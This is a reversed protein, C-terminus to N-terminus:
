CNWYRDSIHLVLEVVKHHLITLVDVFVDHFEVTNGQLDVAVSFSGELVMKVVAERVVNLIFDRTDPLGAGKGFESGESICYIHAVPLALRLQASM